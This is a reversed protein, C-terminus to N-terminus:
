LFDHPAVIVLNLRIKFVRSFIESISVKAPLYRVAKSFTLYVHFVFYLFIRHLLHKNDWEVPSFHARIQARIKVSRHKHEVCSVLFCSLQHEFCPELIRFYLVDARIKIQRPFRRNMGACGASYHISAWGHFLVPRLGQKRNDIETHSGAFPAARKM